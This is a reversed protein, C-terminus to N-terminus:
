RVAFQATGSSYTTNQPQGTRRHEGEGPVASRSHTPHRAGVAVDPECRPRSGLKTVSSERPIGVPPFHRPPSPTTLLRRPPIGPPPARRRRDPRQVRAHAGRDVGRRPRRRRRGARRPDRPARRDRRDLDAVDALYLHWLRDSQAYLMDLTDTLFRNGAAAWVIERCERDIELLETPRARRDTARDLAAAMADWDRPAHRPRLGPADRVARPDGPDRVATSLEVVDISRCTCAAAPSSTVFQDRVLRQLAERIPTRGLGLQSSCRTRASSPAPRSNSRVIM